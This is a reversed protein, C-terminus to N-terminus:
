QDNRRLKSRLQSLAERQRQARQRLQEGREASSIAPTEFHRALSRITPHEFLTVIPFEASLAEKLRAHMQLMLLSHGGLDFFNEEVSVRDLGFMRRWVAAIAEETRTQPPVDNQSGAPAQARPRQSVIPSSFLALVDSLPREVFADVNEIALALDRGLQEVTAASFKKRDYILTLRLAAGPEALLMLPYNTHIPGVFEDVEVQGGLRRVADDVAYNQFVVM